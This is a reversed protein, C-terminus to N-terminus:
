QFEIYEAIIVIKSCKKGNPEFYKEEKLKGVVRIVSKENTNAIIEALKGFAMVEFKSSMTQSNSFSQVEIIFNCYVLGQPTERLGSSSVFNGEIILSNMMNM